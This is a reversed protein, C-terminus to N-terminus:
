RKQVKDEEKDKLITPEFAEEDLTPFRRFLENKYQNYVNYLMQMQLDIEDLKNVIEIHSMTEINNM